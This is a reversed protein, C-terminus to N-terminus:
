ALDSISRKAAERAKREVHLRHTRAWREAWEVVDAMSDFSEPEAVIYGFKESNAGIKVTLASVIYGRRKDSEAAQAATRAADDPLLKLADESLAPFKEKAEARIPELVKKAFAKDADTVKGPRASGAAVMDKVMDDFSYTKGHSEKRAARRYSWQLEAREAYILLHEDPLAAIKARLAAPELSEVNFVIAGDRLNYTETKM